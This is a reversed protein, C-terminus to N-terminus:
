PGYKEVDLKDWCTDCVWKDNTLASCQLPVTSEGPDDKDPVCEVWMNCQECRAFLGKKIECEKTKM